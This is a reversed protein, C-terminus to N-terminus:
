CMMEHVCKMRMYIRKVNNFNKRSKIIRTQINFWVQQLDIKLIIFNNTLIKRETIGQDRYMDILM